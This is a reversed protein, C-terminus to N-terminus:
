SVFAAIRRDANGDHMVQTGLTSSNTTERLKPTDNFHTPHDIDLSPRQFLLIITFSLKVSRVYEHREVGLGLVEINTRM